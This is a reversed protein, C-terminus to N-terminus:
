RCKELAIDISTINAEMFLLNDIQTFNDPNETGNNLVIYQCPYTGSQVVWDPFHEWEAAYADDIPDILEDTGLDCIVGIEQGSQCNAPIPDGADWDVCEEFIIGELWVDKKSTVKIKGGEWFGMRCM